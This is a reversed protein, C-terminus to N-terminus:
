RSLPTSPIESRQAPMAALVLQEGLLMLVALVILWPWLPLGKDIATPIGQAAKASMQAASPPEAMPQLRSESAPFNVANMMVPQGSVLWQYIGPTPAADTMWTAENNHIALLADGPGTLVPVTNSDLSPNSWTLPEGPNTLFSPLGVEPAMHLLLEGIAPLFSNELPWSTHRPDIPFLAILVPRCLAELIAPQNDHFRAVVRIDGVEGARVRQQFKGALPNGYQGDRFLDFAKSDADPLAQWGEDSREMRLPSGPFSHGSIRALSQSDCEPGPSVVLACQRSATVLTDEDGGNWDPIWLIDCSPRSEIVANPVVELWPLAAAVKTLLATTPHDAPAAIALQISDRVKVVTHRRNDQPFGDGGIEATIPLLGTSSVRVKFNAETTGGPPISLPQSQRSGGADLTLESRLPQDSHNVVQCQVLLQQGAIPNLPIATVSDVSLNLPSSDTVPEFNVHVDKPLQLSVKEWASKQFDSIVHLERRGPCEALQRAAIEVAQEIAAVEHSPTQKLLQDGLLKINPAPEPLVSDPFSDMWVINALDPDLEKLLKAAKATAADLRTSGGERAAMSASRDIVIVVSRQEGPLPTRDSQLLPLLFAAMLALVALSRILLLLWDRPAKFRTRYAVARRLFDVNSFPHVPPKVRSILHVVLPLAALGLLGLLAPNQLLLNM